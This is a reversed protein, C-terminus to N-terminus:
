GGGSPPTGWGSPGWWLSAGPTAVASQGGGVVTVAAGGGPVSVAGGPPVSVLSTSGDGYTVLLLLGGGATSVGNNITFSWSTSGSQGQGAASVACGSLVVGAILLLPRM